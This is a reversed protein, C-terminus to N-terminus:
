NEDQTSGRTVPSPQTVNGIFPSFCGGLDGCTLLDGMETGAAM